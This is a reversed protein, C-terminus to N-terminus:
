LPVQILYDFVYPEKNRNSIIKEDKYGVPNLHLWIDNIKVSRPDHTHGCIWGIVPEGFMYELDTAFATSIIPDNRHPSIGKFSPVYHTLVIIPRPNQKRYSLTNELWEVHDQHLEDNQYKSDFIYKFNNTHHLAMPDIMSWLTCGIFEVGCPHVWSSKQLFHIGLKDCIKKIWADTEEISKDHKKTQYYEHNGPVFCIHQFRQKLRMLASLFVENEKLPDSEDYPHGFDGAIILTDCEEDIQLIESLFQCQDLDHKSYFELHVDSCIALKFAHLM